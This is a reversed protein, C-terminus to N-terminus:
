RSSHPTHLESHISEQTHTHINIYTCTTCIHAHIHVHITHMHTHNHVVAVCAHVYVHLMKSVCLFMGGLLVCGCVRVCMAKFTHTYQVILFCKLQTQTHAHTCASMCIFATCRDHEFLCVRRTIGGNISTAISRTSFLVCNETCDFM